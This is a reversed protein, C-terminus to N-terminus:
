RKLPGARAKISKKEITEETEIKNIEERSNINEKKRSVKPQTQEKELEKLYHTLNSIQFKEEKKILAQIAIFKGRLM